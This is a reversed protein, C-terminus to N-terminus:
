SGDGLFRRVAIRSALGTVVSVIAAVVAVSAYGWLGLRVSGFLAEIQDGAPQGQWGGTGASFAALLLIAALSGVGGGKLGLVFFRHQFERAIYDDEAGVYHLVEVVDRNGAMAGRTAFAVALATALLVLGVVGVGIAVVTNAMAALRALWLGHDDLVAGPVAEALRRRLGEFDPLRGDGRELVILRPVPLEALNLGAGLWPELLRESEAKSLVRVGAIGPTERAIAGARAVDAELDRQASPKVQITMERAVSARWQTSSAAVLQAAGTALAALFTLIAIVAVLARSAASDVPVLAAGRRITAPVPPEPPPAPARRVQTAAAPENM